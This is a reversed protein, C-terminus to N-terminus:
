LRLREKVEPMVKTSSARDIDWSGGWGDSDLLYSVCCNETETCDACGLVGIHGNFVSYARQVLARIREGTRAIRVDLECAVLASDDSARSICCGEDGGFPRKNLM